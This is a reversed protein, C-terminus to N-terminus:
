SITVTMAGAAFVAPTNNISVLVPPVAGTAIIAGTAKNFVAFGVIEDSGATCSGFEIPDKNATKGNAAAEFRGAPADHYGAYDPRVISAATDVPTVPATTLAVMIDDSHNPAASVVGGEGELSSERVEELARLARLTRDVQRQRPTKRRLTM